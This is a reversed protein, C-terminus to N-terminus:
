MFPPLLDDFSSKADAPQMSAAVMRSITIYETNPPLLRHHHVDSLYPKKEFSNLSTGKAKNTANWTRCTNKELAGNLFM